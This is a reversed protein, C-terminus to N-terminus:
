PTTGCNPLQVYSFIFVIVCVRIYGYRFYWISIHIYLCTCAHILTCIGSRSINDGIAIVLCVDAESNPNIICNVIISHFERNIIPSMLVATVNIVSSSVAFTIMRIYNYMRM